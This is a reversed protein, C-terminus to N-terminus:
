AMGKAVWAALSMISVMPNVGACTPLASGDAIFLGPLDYCEGQPNFAHRRSDNGMSCTGMQHATFMAFRNPQWGWQPMRGLYHQAAMKSTAINYRSHRFHPFVVEQAGAARHIEFATRIGHLMHARDYPHLQYHVLPQGQKDVRVRGGFKDRTLVVFTAMQAGREMDRRHQGPSEWPLALAALGAHVPPTEIWHGYNGDLQMGDRDVVTMMPGYWGEMPERYFGAVAVTPHFFLNRGVGVHDIGSRLLLAPSHLAGAAVVVRKARITFKRPPQGPLQTVAAVGSAKGGAQLIREAHTHVYIRAGQAVARRLWTRMTGQKAGSRCGMGCYGCDQHGEGGCGRVNRAIVGPQRGLQEVGRWLAENQGNRTSHFKNVGISAMVEVMHQEYTSGETFGLGAQKAWEGRVYDPTTFCATWNITTGGGLCSGAFIGVGGDQSTMAGQKEYTDRIREVERQNFDAGEVYPGKELVIVSHGAEALIGATIGGGAGSGIVVVDCSLEEGNQASQLPIRDPPGVPTGDQPGPYGIVKWEPVSAPGSIGYHVFLSLKKLSQFAKRLPGLRSKSWKQLLRVRDNPALDAFRRAKGAWILGPLKGHLLDLLQGLEKQEWESTGNLIDSVTDVTAQLHATGAEGPAQVFTAVAAELAARRAPTMTIPM